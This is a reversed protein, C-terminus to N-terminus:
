NCLGDFVLFTTDMVHQGPKYQFLDMNVIANGCWASDSHYYGRQGGVQGMSHVLCISHGAWCAPSQALEYPGTSLLALFIM